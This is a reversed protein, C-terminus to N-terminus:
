RPDPPPQSSAAAAKVFRRLFFRITPVALEFELKALVSREMVLLQDRTYTNETIFCFDEVQIAM